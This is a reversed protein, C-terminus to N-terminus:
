NCVILWKALLLKSLRILRSMKVITLAPEKDREIVMVVLKVVHQGSPGRHSSLHVQFDFIPFIVISDTYIRNNNYGVQNRM